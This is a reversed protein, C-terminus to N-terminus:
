QAKDHGVFCSNGNTSLYLLTPDHPSTAIARVNLLSLGTNERQWTVGGDGSRLLGLAPFDDHYPHDQTAVYIVRPDALNVAVDSVFRFELLRQWTHGGDRSVFMGGRFLRQAQNDYHQRAAVYLTKLDGPAAVLSEVQPAFPEENLRRWTRGADRTEYVGGGKAHSGALALLLHKSDRADLLLGRPDGLAAAPLDGNSAQWSRGGDTTTFVGHGKVIVWLRRQGPPSTLDLVLQQPQADPLGTEPRGAVQWTRGGDDSRCVDGANRNWWGTGAWVTDPAAPDVVLSFCNEPNKMGERSRRFTRGGDDSILLGIDMYCFWARDRRVPDPVVRRACTVELGTGAFRGDDLHRSYRQQWTRGGDPSVFVHGSTGFVVQQPDAPSIALCEVSPGWGRIWGYDMNAQPGKTYTVREFSRGGDTSKYVGATVWAQDGVYLVDADRPDVAIESLQSTMQRPQDSRGVRSPLGRGEVRQWTRGADDSRCVAGDFPKKDRATTRLTAYIVEPRSAAFALERVDRHPLGRSSATWTRGGDDSRFVGHQTAVLVTQGNDPKVELDDIIADPPLQGASTLRWTRGTDESRYVAGAGDKGWRPRGVGAYVVEPRRPDFAVAAIPASFRHVQLPPFGNRIWHWTRGGDETRHIGSETGLIITRSDRPHVAVAELFYDHLGQNRIEYNRGTDNSVYFGGVDCGVYLLNSDRPDCAISEIWGGGGPGLRQWQLRHGEPALTASTPSPDACLIAASIALVSIM